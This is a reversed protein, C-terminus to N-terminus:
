RARRGVALAWVGYILLPLPFLAFFYAGGFGRIVVVRAPDAPDFWCPVQSGITWREHEAAARAAGGISMHSDTDYGTSVVEGHGTEYRLALLSQYDTTTGRTMNRTRNVRSTETESRMRTDLITCSAERFVSLTRWDDRAMAVFISGFGLSLTLAVAPGYGTRRIRCIGVLLASLAALGLVAMTADNTGPRSDITAAHTTGFEVRRYPYSVRLSTSLRHGGSDPPIVMRVAFEREAGADLAFTAEVTKAGIDVSSPELGASGTFMAEFPLELRVETYPAAEDGSNRVRVTYTVVDRERPTAPDATITSTSFNPLAEGARPALVLLGVFLRGLLRPLM